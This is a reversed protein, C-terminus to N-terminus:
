TFVIRIYLCILFSRLCFFWTPLSRLSLAHGQKFSRHLPNMILKRSRIFIIQYVFGIIVQILLFLRCLLCARQWGPGNTRLFQDDNSRTGITIGFRNHIGQLLSQYDKYAEAIQVAGYRGANHIKHATRHIKEM